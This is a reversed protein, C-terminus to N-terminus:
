YVAVGFDETLTLGNKQIYAMIDKLTDFKLIDAHSNIFDWLDDSDDDEDFRENIEADFLYYGAIDGDMESAIGVSVDKSDSPLTILSADPADTLPPAVQLSPVNLTKATALTNMLDPFLKIIELALCTVSTPYNIKELSDHSSLTLLYTMFEEAIDEREPFPIEINLPRRLMEAFDEGSLFGKIFGTCKLLQTLPDSFIYTGDSFDESIKANLEYFHELPFLFSSSNM